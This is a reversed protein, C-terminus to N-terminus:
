VPDVVRKAEKSEEKSEENAQKISAKKLDHYLISEASFIDDIKQLNNARMYM